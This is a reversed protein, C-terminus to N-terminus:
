RNSGDASASVTDRQGSFGANMMQKQQHIMMQENIINQNFSLGSKTSRDHVNIVQGQTDSYGM